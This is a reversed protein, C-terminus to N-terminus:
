ATVKGRQVAYAKQYRRARFLGSRLAHDKDVHDSIVRAGNKDRAVVWYYRQWKPKYSARTVFLTIEPAYKPKVTITILEEGEEQVNM